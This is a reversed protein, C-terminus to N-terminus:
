DSVNSELWKVGAAINGYVDGHWGHGGEYTQLKVTAGHEALEESAARGPADPLLRRRGM